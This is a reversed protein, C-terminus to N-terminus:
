EGTPISILEQFGRTLNGFSMTLNVELAAPIVDKIDEVWEGKNLYRFNLNEINSSLPIQSQWTTFNYDCISERRFLSHNESDYVYGVEKLSDERPYLFYLEKSSGSFFTFNSLPTIKRLALVSSVEKSLRQFIRKLRSYSSSLVEERRFSFLATRFLLSVSTVLIVFIFFAVLAEMLTFNKKQTINEKGM